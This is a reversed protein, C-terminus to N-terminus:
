ILCVLTLFSPELTSFNILALLDNIISELDRKVVDFLTYNISWPWLCLCSFKLTLKFSMLCTLLTMSFLWLVDIRIAASTWLVRRMGWSTTALNFVYTLLTLYCPCISWCCDLSATVASMSFCSNLSLSLKIQTGSLYLWTPQFYLCAASLM